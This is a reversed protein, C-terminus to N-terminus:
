GQRGHESGLFDHIRVFEEVIQELKELYINTKSQNIASERARDRDREREEGDMANERKWAHRVCMRKKQTVMCLKHMKHCSFVRIWRYIHRARVCACLICTRLCAHTCVCMCACCVCMGMFVHVRKSAHTDFWVKERAGIRIM